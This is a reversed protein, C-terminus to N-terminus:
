LPIIALCAYRQNAPSVFRGNDWVSVTSFVLSTNFPIAAVPARKRVDTLKGITLKKLETKVGSGTIIYLSFNPLDGPMIMGTTMTPNIAKIKPAGEGSKKKNVPSM